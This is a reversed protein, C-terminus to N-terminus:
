SGAKRSGREKALAVTTGPQIKDLGDVVVIEGAALGRRIATDDGDTVQVEVDRMEVTSDPKVVYVYTSKPSRELAATPVLVADHLLDVLLRANVFQNPYLADDDNPFLAKIRVTGTAPDIQNDIALVSGSALRTKLDRDYAEVTLARGAKMRELVQPLSDAPLTFVVTIPQQQTIVVIGGPDGAHVINGADVLRLGAVGPLPSTIRSYTLNLKASEIQAEDSRVAAEFQDVTAAQADLQQRPVSDQGMLVKYRALDVRANRLAAENIASQAEAQHLQVEFPRPDIQALVDGERVRQGERFAVSVLEGDVRSRVTVTKVPTVTGLGTLYVGLYGSRAALGVVPVARPTAARDTRTGSPQGFYSRSLAAAVAVMVLASAWLWWRRKSGPDRGPSTAPSEPNM